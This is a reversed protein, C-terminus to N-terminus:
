TAEVVSFHPHSNRLRRRARSLRTKAAGYTLGVADAAEALAFGEITTLTILAHDVAALRAPATNLADTAPKTDLHEDVAPIFDPEVDPAPLAALFREYRRRSRTANRAVNGATVLLWPLLSRDVFRASNRSRRLELFVVATLDEADAAVPSSRLLVRFIRDRHLEFLVGFARQDGSLVRDWLARDDHEVGRYHGSWGVPSM